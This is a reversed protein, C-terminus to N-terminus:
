SPTHLVSSPKIKVGTHEISYRFTSGTKIIYAEATHKAILLCM